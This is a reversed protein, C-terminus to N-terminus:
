RLENLLRTAEAVKAPQGGSTYLSLAKELDAIAKDKEGRDKFLLARDRYADALDPKLEIAKNFDELAFDLRNDKYYAFGRGHYAQAFDPLQRVVLDFQPIAEKWEGIELLRIARSYQFL